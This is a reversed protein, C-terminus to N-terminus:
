SKSFTYSTTLNLDLMLITLTHSPQFPYRFHLQPNARLSRISFFPFVRVPYNAKHLPTTRWPSPFIALSVRGPKILEDKILGYSRYLKARAMHALITSFPVGRAPSLRHCRLCILLFGCCCLRLLWPAMQWPLTITTYASGNSVRIKM